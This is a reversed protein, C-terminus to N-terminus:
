LTAFAVQQSSSAKRRRHVMFSVMAAWILDIFNIGLVRLSLPFFRFLAFELPMLMISTAWSTKLAMFYDKKVQPVIQKLSYGEGFGTTFFLTAVFLADVVFDDILVQTMAAVSGALGSGVVPFMRELLNYVFHLLPGTVFVGDLIISLGRRRDYNQVDFTVGEEKNRIREEHVQAVTDGFCGIIGATLAKTLLPLKTLCAVYWVGFKPLSTSLVSLTNSLKWTVLAGGVIWKTPIRSKTSAQRLLTASVASFAVNKESLGIPLVPAGGAFRTYLFLALMGIWPLRGMITESESLIPESADDLIRPAEDQFVIGDSHITSCASTEFFTPAPTRPFMPPTSRPANQVFGESTPNAGLFLFLVCLFIKRSIMKNTTCAMTWRSVCFAFQQKKSGQNLNDFPIEFQPRM